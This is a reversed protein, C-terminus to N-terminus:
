KISWKDEKYIVEHKAWISFEERSSAETKKREPGTIVKYIIMDKADCSEDIVRKIVGSGDNKGHLYYHGLIIHEPALHTALEHQSATKYIQELEIESIDTFSRMSKLAYELDSRPIIGISSEKVKSDKKLQQQKALAAPYRRWPFMYNFAIAVLLIALVNYLVPSIVYEYGLLHIQKGGVVAALATAGGPPHICRFYYMVAISIGVALSAALILNPIILYCSVGVLASLLHGGAVPWPQSLPGQPVAFLLVASAGMSAVILGASQMGVISSTILLVFFISIFGGTASIIKEKHQTNDLQIGLLQILKYQM